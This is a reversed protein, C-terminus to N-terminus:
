RRAWTSCAPARSTLRPMSTPPVHEGPDAQGAGADPRHRRPDRRVGPDRRRRRGFDLPASESTGGFDEVGIDTGGFIDAATRTCPLTPRACPGTATGPRWWTSPTAPRPSGADIFLERHQQGVWRGNGVAPNDFGGFNAQAYLRFTTSAGVSILNPDTAPSGITNTSGGDGTSVVVTVGAAVAADDAERTIDLATDPFPNSASPSTSSRPATSSPTSSPRSSPPIRHHRQERQLGEAGPRQRRPRRGRDQDLLRQGPLRAAQAPNVFQSLNYEQNGQAAISSVDGFMEGGATPTGAPDGSFDVQQVVPQGPRGYAPNRQLDPNTTDLGDAITAVTVGAGDIGLSWAGPANITQLAQPTSSPRGSLVAYRPRPVTGVQGLGAGRDQRPFAGRALSLPSCCRYRRM